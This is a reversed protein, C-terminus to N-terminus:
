HGKAEYVAVNLGAHPVFSRFNFNCESYSLPGVSRGVSQKTAQRGPSGVREALPEHGAIGEKRRELSRAFPRFLSNRRKATSSEQVFFVLLALSPFQEVYM